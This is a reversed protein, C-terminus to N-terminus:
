PTRGESGEPAAPRPKAVIPAPAMDVLYGDIVRLSLEKCAERIKRAYDAGEPMAQLDYCLVLPLIHADLICRATVAYIEQGDGISRAQVRLMVYLSNSLPPKHFYRLTEIFEEAREVVLYLPQSTTNSM